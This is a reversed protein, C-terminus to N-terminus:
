PGYDLTSPYTNIGINGVGIARASGDALAFVAVYITSTRVHQIPNGLADKTTGEEHITVGRVPAHGRDRYDFGASAARILAECSPSRQASCGVPAGIPWGDIVSPTSCGIVIAALVALATVASRTRSM